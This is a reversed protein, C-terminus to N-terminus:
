PSVVRYFRMTQSTAGTDIFTAPGTGFVSNTLVDWGDPPNTPNASAQVEYPQADPGSFTLEFSHNGLIHGSIITPAELTAANVTVTSTCTNTNGNGDDVYFEIMNTGVPVETGAPPQQAINVSSSCADTAVVLSTLNSLIALGNYGATVTQAPACQTIVPATTDVVYVQRTNTASNGAADGAVYEITYVGVANPNVTSNTSLNVVGSCNDLVTAGPDVLATHCENTLPSAGLLTIV